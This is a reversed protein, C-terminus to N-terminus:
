VHELGYVLKKVRITPRIAAGNCVTKIKAGVLDLTHDIQCIFVMGKFTRTYSILIIIIKHFCWTCYNENM